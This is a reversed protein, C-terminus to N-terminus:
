HNHNHLACYEMENQKGAWAIREIHQAIFQTRLTISKFNFGSKFDRVFPRKTIM